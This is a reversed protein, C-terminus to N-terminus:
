HHEVDVCGGNVRCGARCCVRADHRPRRRLCVRDPRISATDNAPGGAGHSGSLPNLPLCFYVKFSLHESRLDTCLDTCVGDRSM